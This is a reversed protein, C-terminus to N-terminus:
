WVQWWRRRASANIQGQAAQCAQMIALVTEKRDNAIELAAVAGDGFAVWEGVTNAQPLAPPPVSARIREPILGVCDIVPRTTEIPPASACASLALAALMALPTARM